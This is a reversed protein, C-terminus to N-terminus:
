LERDVSIPPLIVKFQMTFDNVVTLIVHVISSVIKALVVESHTKKVTTLAHVVNKKFPIKKTM